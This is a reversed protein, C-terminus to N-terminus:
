EGRHVFIQVEQQDDLVGTMTVFLTSCGGLLVLPQYGIFEGAQDLNISGMGRKHVGNWSGWFELTGTGPAASKGDAGFCGVCVELVDEPIDSGMKFSVDFSHPMDALKGKYM